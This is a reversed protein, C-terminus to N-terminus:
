PSLLVNDGKAVGDIPEGDVDIASQLAKKIKAISLPREVQVTVGIDMEVDVAHYPEPNLITGDPTIDPPKGPKISEILTLRVIKPM